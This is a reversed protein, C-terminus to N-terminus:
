KKVLSSLYDKKYKFGKQKALKAIAKDTRSGYQAAKKPRFAIQQPLGLTVASDRLIMKAGRENLKLTVPINMSFSILEKDLFPVHFHIHTANAIAMDRLLDREFMYFLGNWCEEHRNTSDLHRKYGAFIEESGLGGFVETIKSDSEQLAKVGALEVSGVGVNVVNNLEKGFIDAAEQFLKETQVFDLLVEKYEFGLEKAVTRAEFIDDPLKQENNDQFGITVAKFPIKHKHLLYCILTSDVGGSFLVGIKGKSAAEKAHSIITKELLSALQLIIKEKPEQSLKEQERLSSIYKTWSEKDSPLTM